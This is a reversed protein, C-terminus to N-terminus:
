GLGVAGVPRESRDLVLAREQLHWPIHNLVDVHNPEAGAVHLIEVQETFDATRRASREAAWARDREQALQWTFAASGSLALVM